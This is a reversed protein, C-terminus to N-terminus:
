HDKGLAAMHSCRHQGNPCECSAREINLCEDLYIAVKYQRKKMSPDVVGQVVRLVADYNFKAVKNNKRAATEGKALVNINESFFQAITAMSIIHNTIM